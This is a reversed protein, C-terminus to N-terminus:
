RLERKGFLKAQIADVLKEKDSDILQVEEAPLIHVIAPNDPDLRARGIATLYRVARNVMDPEPHDSTDWRGHGGYSECEIDSIAAETALEREIQAIPKTEADDALCARDRRDIEAILLAAARVLASRPTKPKWWEDLWPWADPPPIQAFSEDSLDGFTAACYAYCLAAHALEGGAHDDDHEPTWGEQEIQRLRESIVDHIARSM